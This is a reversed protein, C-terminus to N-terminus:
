TWGESMLISLAHAAQKPVVGNGLATLQQSFTLDHRPDTVWGPELGMLWEVFAPAPRPGSTDNVLAPAPAARGTLHEWRRIAGAYRGWRRLAARDADVSEGAGRAESLRGSRPSRPRHDPPQARDDRSTSEGTALEGWGQGRRLGVPHPVPRHALIFVRFRPHPAGVASAPLGVWAADMGLDALDGVVAGAARLPRAASEGLSWPDPELSGLTASGPTAPGIPTAANRPENDTGESRPRIAPSSLLGRVNEIVVWEPQLADIANAMHAWLGSRTGPALGARKGVTSVDQCPFGGCLIDVQPTTSWDITTIDGLNPADPWHHAFVRAVPENIDSFWVTDADFVEEVALDLGGYGSFLSGVRLRCDKNTDNPKRM